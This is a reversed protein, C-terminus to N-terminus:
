VRKRVVTKGTTDEVVYGMKVLQNRIKDSATFDKKKRAEDRLSILRSIEPDESLNEQQFFGLIRGLERIKRSAAKADVHMLPNKKWEHAVTVLEHLCALANPTDLDDDMDEYFAREAAKVDDTLQIQDGIPDLVDAHSFFASFREYQHAAADLREWTFDVPSRYHASLFFLRLVDPNPHRKLADGITVINGVSKSMKQGNVTLLGNHLWYRAFPKDAGLAQALENEHHPFILDRGGGHIDFTDGLIDTSMTSCEIHWGPRGAGWPSEWSPEDPKAKKWLAFDMPEKKGEGPDIRVGELMQDLKQGSLKGYEKDSESFKRVSFYVGGAGEYAMEKQILKEIFAIMKPIYETARPEHTPPLLGLRAFDSRFSEEFRRAVATAASKLDPSSGAQVEARARDIIKDDVDTINRVHTVKFKFRDSGLYRRLVDFVVAGRAHGIHCHDYVTVGCVYLSVQGEKLPKFEETRGTLTNTLSLPM